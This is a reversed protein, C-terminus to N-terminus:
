AVIFGFTGYAKRKGLMIVLNQLLELFYRSYLSAKAELIVLYVICQQQLFTYPLINFNSTNYQGEPATFFLNFPLFISFPQIAFVTPEVKALELAFDQHCSSM